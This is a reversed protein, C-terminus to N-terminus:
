MLKVAYIRGGIFHFPFLAWRRGYNPEMANSYRRRCCYYHQGFWEGIALWSNSLRADLCVFMTDMCAPQCGYRTRLAYRFYLPTKLVHMKYYDYCCYFCLHFRFLFFNNLPLAFQASKKTAGNDINYQRHHETNRNISRFLSLVFYPSHAANTSARAIAVNTRKAREVNM